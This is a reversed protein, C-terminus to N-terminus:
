YSNLLDIDEASLASLSQRKSLPASSQEGETSLRRKKGKQVAAAAATSSLTNQDATSSTDCLDVKYFHIAVVKDKKTTDSTGSWSNLSERVFKERGYFSLANTRPKYDKKPVESATIEWQNIVQEAWGETKCDSHSFEKLPAESLVMKMHKRFFGKLSLNVTVSTGSIDLKQLTKFCTLYGLGKETIPNESLDLLQLNELGKKMVRVPATLRQLGADSLCNAGIFLKVLSCGYLDLSELGQFQRIEELRESILLNRNRLCLSRLVLEGYAECFVQLARPATHPETFKHREEAASFLKDAMQEPFGVLSDVHEVHDAIFQLSIDFLSKVTYRLSGEKNYTFIFHDRRKTHSSSPLTDICLQFSFDRSFLRHQPADNRDANVYRLEGKERVYVAGCDESVYM